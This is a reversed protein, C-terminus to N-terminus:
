LHSGYSNVHSDCSDSIEKTPCSGAQLLGRRSMQSTLIISVNHGLMRCVVAADRDDWGDDCVHGWEGSHYIEVRGRLHGDPHGYPWQSGTLRVSGDALPTFHLFAFTNLNFCLM